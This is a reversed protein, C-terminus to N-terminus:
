SKYPYIYYEKIIEKIKLCISEHMLLDNTAVITGGHEFNSTGYYLDENDLNTIAGGAAKLIAEPASFDWDKPASKGPM